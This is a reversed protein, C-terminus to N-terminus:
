SKSIIEVNLLRIINNNSTNMFHMNHLLSDYNISVSMKSHIRISKSYDEFQLKITLNHPHHKNCLCHFASCLAYGENARLNTKLSAIDFDRAFQVHNQYEQILM